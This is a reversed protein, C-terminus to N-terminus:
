ITRSASFPSNLRCGLRLRNPKAGLIAHPTLKRVAKGHHDVVLIEVMARQAELRLGLQDQVASFITIDNPDDTGDRLRFNPTAEITYDYTGTLGTKDVVPRDAFNRIADVM